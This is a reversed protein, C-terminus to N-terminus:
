HIIILLLYAMVDSWKNGSGSIETGNDLGNVVAICTGDNTNANPFLHLNM